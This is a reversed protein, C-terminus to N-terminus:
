LREKFCGVRSGRRINDTFIHSIDTAQIQEGPSQALDRLVHGGKSLCYGRFTIETLIAVCLNAANLLVVGMEGSKRKKIRERPRRKNPKMTRGYAATSEDSEQKKVCFDKKQADDSTISKLASINANPM